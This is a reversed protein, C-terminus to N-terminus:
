EKLTPQQRRAPEAVWGKSLHSVLAPTPILRSHHFSIELSQSAMCFHTWVPVLLMEIVSYFLSKLHATYPDLDFWYVDGQLPSFNVTKFQDTRAMVPKKSRPRM